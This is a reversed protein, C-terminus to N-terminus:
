SIRWSQAGIDTFTCSMVQGACAGLARTVNPRDIPDVLFMMFGGGGAGSVKGAKAGANTAIRWLEDISPNSIGKAMRKKSEWSDKMSAAIGEFDARLVAEKMRTAEFKVEHLAALPDTQNEVVNNSQEKIINASERSVGTYFLV